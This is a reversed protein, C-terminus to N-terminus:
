SYGLYDVGGTHWTQWIGMVEEGKRRGFDRRVHDM